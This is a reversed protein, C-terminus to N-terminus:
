LFLSPGRYEIQFSPCKPIPSNVAATGIVQCPLLYQLSYSCPRSLRRTESHSFCSRTFVHQFLAFHVFRLQHEFLGYYDVWVVWFESEREDSAEGREVDESYIRSKNM